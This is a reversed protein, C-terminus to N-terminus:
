ILSFLPVTVSLPETGFSCCFCRISDSTWCVVPTVCTFLWIVTELWDLELWDSWFEAPRELVPELLPVAPAVAPPEIPALEPETLPEAPCLGSECDCDVSFLLPLVSIEPAADLEGPAEDCDLLVVASLALALWLM